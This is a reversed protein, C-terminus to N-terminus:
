KAILNSSEVKLNVERYQKLEKLTVSGTKDRFLPRLSTRDVYALDDHIHKPRIKIKMWRKDRSIESGSTLTREEVSHLLSWYDLLNKIDEIDVYSSFYRLVLADKKILRDEGDVVKRIDAVFIEDKYFKM